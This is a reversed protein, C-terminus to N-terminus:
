RKPAKRPCLNKDIKEAEEFYIKKNEEFNKMNNRIQNDIEKAEDDTLKFSHFEENEEENIMPNIKPTPDILGLDDDTKLKLKKNKKIVIKKKRKKNKHKISKHEYPDKGLIINFYKM